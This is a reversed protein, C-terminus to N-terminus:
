TSICHHDQYLTKDELVSEEEAAAPCIGLGVGLALVLVLLLSFLRRRMTM